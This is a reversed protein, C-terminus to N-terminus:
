EKPIVIRTFAKGVPFGEPVDVEATQVLDGPACYPLPKAREPLLFLKEVSGGVTRSYVLQAKMANMKKPRM